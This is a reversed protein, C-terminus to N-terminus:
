HGFHFKGSPMLGTMMVFPKKNKIAELIKDFDRQAFITKRRFLVEENFSSPLKQMLKIGFERILKDYDLNGKVEWPTVKSNVGEKIKAM